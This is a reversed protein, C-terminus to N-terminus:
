LVEQILERQWKLLLEEKNEQELNPAALLELSQRTAILTSDIDLEAAVKDRYNRIKQFRAEDIEIRPGGNKRYKVPYDSEPIERIESITKLLRRAFAPRLYKPPEIREGKQLQKSFEILENNSMFKFHPRDLRRCEEDRWQWLGRLFALGKRDLKGWGNIRWVEDESRETREVAITRAYSCMEEFWGRRGKEELRELYRNGLEILYRVDNFAYALMKPSLPRRGWNAKQSQKSVVLDFEQELLNALGYKRVGLLRAASQTDWVVDPIWDFTKRFMSMDYDAGHMWIARTSKFFDLMPELEELEVALPDIIALNGPVAFQILCMKTDYSHLSDAETDVACVSHDEKSLRDFYASIAEPTDLYHEETESM